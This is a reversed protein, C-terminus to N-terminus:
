ARSIFSAAQVAFAHGSLRLRYMLLCARLLRAFEQDVMSALDGESVEAGPRLPLLSQLIKQTAM